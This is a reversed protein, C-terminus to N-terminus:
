GSPYQQKELTSRGLARAARLRASRARQNEIVEEPSPTAEPLLELEPRHGCRCVPLEPPCICSQAKEHLFHKVIRDELSHFSIVALVGGPKLREFAAVLGTKLNNLEDNVAIRLAQFTQTAPHIKWRQAPKPIAREVLAALQLTTEIGKPGKPNKTRERVIEAAIRGAYREEGYERLIRTLEAQSSENILRRADLPSAPDFRMDLPADHRFSFGREPTDFQMSSVGLDFLAGDIQGINLENLVRGLDRFSARRLTVRDGFVSLRKAAIELAQPDLDLGILCGTTLRQAIEYAHGGAGVTADLYIGDPQVSLRELAENLLVPRHLSRMQAM